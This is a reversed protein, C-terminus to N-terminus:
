RKHNKTNLFKKFEKKNNYYNLIDRHYGCLFEDPGDSAFAVKTGVSNIKKALMSFNLISPDLTELTNKSVRLAESFCNERLDIITHLSNIEKSVLKSLQLESINVEQIKKSNTESSIAYLTNLEKNKNLILNQYSSDVGGSLFSYLNVLKPFRM